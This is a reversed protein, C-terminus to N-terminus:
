YKLAKNDPYIRTFIRTYIKFLDNHDNHISQPIYICLIYLLLELTNYIANPFRNHELILRSVKKNDGFSFFKCLQYFTGPLNFIYHFLNHLVCYCKYIYIINTTNLIQVLSIRQFDKKKKSTNNLAEDIVSNPM